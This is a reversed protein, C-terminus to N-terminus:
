NNSPPCLLNVFLWAVLFPESFTEIELHSRPSDGRMDISRKLRAKFSKDKGEHKVRERTLMYLIAMNRFRVPFGDLRASLVRELRM